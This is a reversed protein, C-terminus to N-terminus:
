DQNLASLAKMAMEAELSEILVQHKRYERENYRKLGELRADVWASAVQIAKIITMCPLPLNEPSVPERRWSFYWNAYGLKDDIVLKNYVARVEIRDMM